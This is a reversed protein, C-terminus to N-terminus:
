DDGPPSSPSPAQHDPGGLLAISRAAAPICHEDGSLMASALAKALVSHHILGRSGLGAFLWVREEFVREELRALSTGITSLHPIDREPPPPDREPLPTDRGPPISSAAHTNDREQPPPTRLRLRGVLPIAGAATRAAVGKVGACAADTNTSKYWYLLVSYRRASGAAVM